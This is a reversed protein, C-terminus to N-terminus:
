PLKIEEPYGLRMMTRGNLANMAKMAQDTWKILWWGTRYPKGGIAAGQKSVAGDPGSLDAFSTALLYSRVPVNRTDVYPIKVDYWSSVNQPSTPPGGGWAYTGNYPFSDYDIWDRDRTFGAWVRNMEKSYVGMYGSDAAAVSDNFTCIYDKGGMLNYGNTGLLSIDRGGLQDTVTRQSAPFGEPNTWKGPKYFGRPDRADFRLAKFGALGVAYLISDRRPYNKPSWDDDPAIAISGLRNYAGVTQLMSDLVAKAGLLQCTLSTDSGTCTGDGYAARSRYRGWVDRPRRNITTGGNMAVTTDLGTLVWPVFCAKLNRAAVILDRKYTSMSDPDANVGFTVPIGAATLSDLSAYAGATDDPFIGGPGLRRKRSCLGTITVARVQPLKDPDFLINGTLSDLRALACLMVTPDLEATADSVLSDVPGGAGDPYCFIMKSAGSLTSYEREWLVATDPYSVSYMSDCWGCAVWPSNVGNNQFLDGSTIKLLTRVGGTTASLTQDRLPIGAIFSGANLWTYNGDATRTFGTPAFDPTASVSTSCCPSDIFSGAAVRDDIAMLTPVRPGYPDTTKGTYRTISDPRAYGSGSNGIGFGMWMVADFQEVVTGSRLTAATGGGWVMTGTRGWETKLHSGKLAKYNVGFLRLLDYWAANTRVASNGAQSTTPNDVYPVLLKGRPTAWASAALVLAGLILLGRRM